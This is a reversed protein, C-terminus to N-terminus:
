RADACSWNTRADTQETGLKLYRQEGSEAMRSGQFTRVKEPKSRLTLWSEAEERPHTPEKGDSLEMHGGEVQM